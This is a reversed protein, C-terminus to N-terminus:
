ESESLLGEHVLRELFNLVLRLVFLLELYKPFSWSLWSKGDVIEAILVKSSFTSFTSSAM